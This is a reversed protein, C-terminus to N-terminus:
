SADGSEPTTPPEISASRWVEAFESNPYAKAATSGLWWGALRLPMLDVGTGESYFNAAERKGNMVDGIWATWDGDWFSQLGCNIESAYLAAMIQLTNM